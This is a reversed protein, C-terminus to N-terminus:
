VMIEWFLGIVTDDIDRVPYRLGTGWSEKKGRGRYPSFGPPRFFWKKVLFFYLQFFSMLIALTLSWIPVVAVSLGEWNLLSSLVWYCSSVLHTYHQGPTPLTDALHRGLPPSTDASHRGVHKDTSTPRYTSRTEASVDASYWDIYQGLTPRWM